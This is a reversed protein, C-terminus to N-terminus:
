AAGGRRLVAARADEGGALGRDEALRILMAHHLEEGRNVLELTAIGAQVTDPVLFIYDDATITIRNAALPRNGGGLMGVAVAAAAALLVALAYPWATRPLTRRPM